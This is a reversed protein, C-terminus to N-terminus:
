SHAAQHGLHALRTSRRRAQRWRYLHVQHVTTVLAAGLILLSAIAIDGTIERPGNAFVAASMRDSPNEPNVYFVKPDFGPMATQYTRGGYSYSVFCIYYRRYYAPTFRPRGNCYLVNAKVAVHHAALADYTQNAGVADALFASGFGTMALVMLVIASHVIHFLRIRM